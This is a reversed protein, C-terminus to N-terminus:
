HFYTRVLKEGGIDIINPIFRGLDGYPAYEMIIVGHLM